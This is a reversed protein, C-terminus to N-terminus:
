PMSQLMTKVVAVRFISEFLVIIIVTCSDEIFMFYSASFHLTFFLIFIWLLIM